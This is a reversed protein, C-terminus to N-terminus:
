GSTKSYLEVYLTRNTGTIDPLECHFIGTPYMANNRHNLRVTQFGRDRYFDHGHGSTRVSSGNPLYWEGFREFDHHQSTYPSRCCDPKDTVCMLADNGEGISSIMVGSNNLYQEGRLLLRVGGTSTSYISNQCHVMIAAAHWQTYYYQAAM